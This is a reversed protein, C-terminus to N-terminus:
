RDALLRELVNIVRHEASHLDDDEPDKKAVEILEKLLVHLMEHLATENLSEDTVPVTDFSKGLRITVTRQVMDQASVEAMVSRGARKEAVTLRWDMLGLREQWTSCFAAFKAAHEATVENL